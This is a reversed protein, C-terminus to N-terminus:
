RQFGIVKYKPEPKGALINVSTKFRWDIIIPFGPLRILSAAKSCKFAFSGFRTKNM